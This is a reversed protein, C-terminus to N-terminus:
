RLRGVDAYAIAEQEPTQLLDLPNEGAMIMCRIQSAIRHSIETQLIICSCMTNAFNRVRDVVGNADDVGHVNRGLPTVGTSTVPAWKEVQRLAQPVISVPSLRRYSENTKQQRGRESM